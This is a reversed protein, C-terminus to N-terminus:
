PAPVFDFGNTASNVILTFRSGASNTFVIGGGVGSFEYTDNDFNYSIISRGTGDKIGLEIRFYADSSDFM